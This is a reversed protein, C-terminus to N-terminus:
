DAVLDIKLTQVLSNLYVKAGDFDFINVCRDLSNLASQVSSNEADLQNKLASLLELAVVDNASLAASLETMSKTVKKNDIAVPIEMTTKQPPGAHENHSKFERFSQLVEDMDKSFNQLLSPWQETQKTKVAKELAIASKTLQVASINAAMGKASHVLNLLKDYSDERNNAMAAAIKKSYDAHDNVLEDLLSLYLQKDGGLRNMADELDIGALSNPFPITLGDTQKKSPTPSPTKTRDM